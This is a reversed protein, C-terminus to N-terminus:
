ALLLYIHVFFMRECLRENTRDKSCLCWVKIEQFFEELSPWDEAATVIRANPENSCNAFYAKGGKDPVFFIKNTDSTSHLPIPFCNFLQLIACEPVHFSGSYSCRQKAAVLLSPFLGYGARPIKSVGVDFVGRENPQCIYAHAHTM